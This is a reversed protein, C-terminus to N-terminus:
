DLSPYIVRRVTENTHNLLPKLKREVLIDKEYHLLGRIAQCVVKPDEDLLIEFLYPKNRENRLRGIASVIERKTATDTENRFADWLKGLNEIDNLKAINKASLLRVKPNEHTLLEFLFSGDFKNPLYGLNELIFSLNKADKYKEALHAFGDNAEKKLNEIYEKTLM